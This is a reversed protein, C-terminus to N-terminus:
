SDPPEGSADGDRAGEALRLAANQILTLWKNPGEIIIGARDAPTDGDLGMHPKVCNHHLRFGRITASDEKKLGRTVKELDRFEGNLREQINNNKLKHRMHIDQIHETRPVRNTWFEKHYALHYADLGDTVFEKPKKGAAEKAEKLEAIHRVIQEPPFRLVVEGSDQDVIEVFVRSLEQDFAM